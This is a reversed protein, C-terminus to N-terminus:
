QACQLLEAALLNFADTQNVKDFVKEAKKKYVEPTTDDGSEGFQNEVDDKINGIKEVTDSLAYFLCASVPCTLQGPKAAALQSYKSSQIPKLLDSINTSETKKNKFLEFVAPNPCATQDPKFSVMGELMRTEIMFWRIERRYEHLGNISELGSFDFPTNYIETLADALHKLITTEPKDLNQALNQIRKRITIIKSKAGFWKESKLVVAFERKAETAKKELGQKSWKDIKGLGDEIKKFEFRIQSFEPNISSFTRGLAQLNFAAIRSQSVALLNDVAAAESKASVLPTELIALWKDFLQTPNQFQQAIASISNLGIFLVLM